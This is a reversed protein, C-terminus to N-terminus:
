FIELLRLQEVVISLTKRQITKHKILHLKKMFPMGHLSIRLRINDIFELQEFIEIGDIFHM